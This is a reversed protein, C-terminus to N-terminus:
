VKMVRGELANAIRRADNLSEFRMAQRYLVSLIFGMKEPDTSLGVLYLRGVMVIWHDRRDTM